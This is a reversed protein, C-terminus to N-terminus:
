DIKKLVKRYTNEDLKLLSSEVDADGLDEWTVSKMYSM